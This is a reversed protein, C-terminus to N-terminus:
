FSKIHLMSINKIYELFNLVEDSVENSPSGKGGVVIVQQNYLAGRVSEVKGRQSFKEFM